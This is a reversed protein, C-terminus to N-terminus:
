RIPSPAFSYHATGVVGGTDPRNRVGLRGLRPSLCAVLGPLPEPGRPRVGRLVGDDDISFSLVLQSPERGPRRLSAQAYCREAHAVSDEILRRVAAASVSGSEIEVSTVTALMRTREPRPNPGNGITTTSTPALEAPVSTDVTAAIPGDEVDVDTDPSPLPTGEDLTSNAEEPARARGFPPERGSRSRSPQRSARTRQSRSAPPTSAFATEALEVLAVRHVAALAPSADAAAAEPRIPEHGVAVAPPPRGVAAVREGLAPAAADLAVRGLLATVAVVVLAAGVRGGRRARPLLSRLAEMARRMRQVQGLEPETTWLHPPRAGAEVGALPAVDTRLTPESAVRPSLLVDQLRRRLDRATQFRRKPDKHMATTIISALLEPVEPRLGRPDPTAESVHQIAVSMPTDGTFPLHGTAMQFMMVGCAYLDSRADITEGRAQEPSMYEPTGVIVDTATVVSREGAVDTRATAIGFDVVKVLEVRRGEDDTTSALVINDPKMDRHVVGREHAAGLASLVQTMISVLRATRLPMGVVLESALSPGDALEMAIYHGLVGDAGFDVVRVINPHDLKSAIRAERRFRAAFSRDGQMAPRLVKLAVERDLEIQRARYVIGMGGDGLVSLLEYKGDVVRAPVVIPGGAGVRPPRM